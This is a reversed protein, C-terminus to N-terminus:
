DINFIDDVETNKHYQAQTLKYPYGAEKYYAIRKKMRADASTMNSCIDSINVSDKDRGKRLGRGIQQITAIFSKGADIFVLNFIRDVSLGVGAIGKTCIAIVDDNTEFLDYVAKRASDKNSGNLVHSNPILAGLEKGFKINNILVLTNGVKSKKSDAVIRDALWQLRLTNSKIFHEEEEYMLDHPKKVGGDRLCQIDDLQVITINPQALWGSEILDKASYSCNVHGLAIHVQLKNVPDKPLTGTLGYRHVIHQGYDTLLEYLTKAKSGHCNSVVVGNAIYNHNKEVELNYVYEPKEILTRKILKM